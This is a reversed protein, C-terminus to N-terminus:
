IAFHTQMTNVFCEESMEMRVAADQISIIGDRVLTFLMELQGEMREDRLMETLAECMNVGGDEGFKKGVKELEIAHTCAVLMDYADEDMNRYAPDSQILQKLKSKDKSYRIFDFIQKVDTEFLETREWKRIEFVFIPYNNIYKRLKGPIETMDLIGHLDFSGDWEEGYYLVLTVCPKLRSQKAFGSLYEADTLGKAGGPEKRMSAVQREYEAADYSMIRLPMLYHVKYQNEIGLVVFNVGFATKKVIDRIRSTQKNGVACIVESNMERLDERRVCQEGELLLGNILDAFRGADSFCRKQALDAGM